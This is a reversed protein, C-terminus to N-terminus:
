WRPDEAKWKGNGFLTFSLADSVRAGLMTSISGNVNQNSLGSEESLSAVKRHAINYM